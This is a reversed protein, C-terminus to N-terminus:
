PCLAQSKITKKGGTDGADSGIGPVKHVNSNFHVILYPLSM